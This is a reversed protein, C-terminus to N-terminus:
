GREKLYAYVTYEFLGYDHRIVFNRSIEADLFAGMADLPLHFLDDRQWDLHISMVNFALGRRCKAKATIVMSKFYELMADFPMAGKYNFLGNMVIYDFVPLTSTDELIDLKYYTIDPHKKRSLALYEDSLDLGSYRINRYGLALSHEYLHSAGCGIDLVTVPQDKERIADLMISYRRNALEQSKTWGMGLYNDGHRRLDTECAAVIEMYDSKSFM